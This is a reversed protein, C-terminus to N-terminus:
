PKTEEFPTVRAREQTIEEIDYTQALIQTATQRSLLGSQTLLTLTRGDQERDTATPAYWPPWRLALASASLAGVSHGQITLPYKQSAAVVQRLLSLLAGEGYSLRLKDALWILPQNLLEMARGSQAASLRDAHARNGQLSELALERLYRVYELVASAAGGQIELLKADGEKDVILADTGGKLLASDAHAPEKILLMPDSSYKLGRGAQSLQYDIEMVTDIASEFTCAGDVGSGGPLNKIWVWPVFELGHTVSRSADIQPSNTPESVLWPVYWTEHQDDWVRCFWYDAQPVTISEYGQAQLVHGKVKYQQRISALTDPAEEQWTPTLFQSPLVEFFVRGRLIRWRIAVSGVSGQTAAELLVAQLHTERILARLVECTFTDECSIQPFQGEAFLLSVSHDVVTKCLGSRVCPRRDRIPIHEGTGILREQHFDYLLHDYLRGELVRTFSELRFQREPYDSDRPLRSMLSKFM